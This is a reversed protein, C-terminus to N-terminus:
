DTNTGVHRQVGPRRGLSELYAARIFGNCNRVVERDTKGLDALVALAPALCRAIVDLKESASLTKSM